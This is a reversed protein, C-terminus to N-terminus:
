GSTLAAFPGQSVYPVDPLSLVQAVSALSCTLEPSPLQPAHLSVLFPLSNHLQDDESFDTVNRQYM